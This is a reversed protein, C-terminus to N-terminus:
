SSSWCPSRWIRPNGKTLMKVVLLNRDEPNVDDLHAQVHPMRDVIKVKAHRMPNGAGQHLLLHLRRFPLSFLLNSPQAVMVKMNPDGTM